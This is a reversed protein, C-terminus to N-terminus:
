TSTTKRKHEVWRLTVPISPDYDDDDECENCFQEIDDLTLGLRSMTFQAHLPTAAAIKRFFQITVERNIDPFLRLMMKWTALDVQSGLQDAAGEVVLPLTVDGGFLNFFWEACGRMNNSILGIFMKIITPKLSKEDVDVSGTCYYMTLWKAVKSSLPNSSCLDLCQGIESPSFEGVSLVEKIHSLVHSKVCKNLLRLLLDHHVAPNLPFKKLVAFTLSLKHHFATNTSNEVVSVVEAEIVEDASACNALAVCNAMKELHKQHPFSEVFAKVGSVGNKLRLSRPHPDAFSFTDVLWKIIHLHGNRAAIWVYGELLLKNGDDIPFLASVIWKFVGLHGNKCVQEMIYFIGRESWLEDSLDTGDELGLARTSLNRFFPFPIQLVMEMAPDHGISRTSWLPIGAGGGCSGEESDVLPWWECGNGVFRQAMRLHGGRCLGALVAVQEKAKQRGGNNGARAGDAGEGGGGGGCPGRGSGRRRRHSIIWAACRPSLSAAAAEVAPYHRSGRCASSPAVARSALAVLPFM